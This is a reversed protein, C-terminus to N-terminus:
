ILSNPQCHSQRLALASFVKANYDSFPSNRVATIFRACSWKLTLAEEPALRSQDVSPGTWLYTTVWYTDDPGKGECVGSYLPELYAPDLSIGFEEAGERVMAQLNSEGADVKGGPFGWRSTDNRRSVALVSSPNEPNPILVCVASKM